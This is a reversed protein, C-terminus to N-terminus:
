GASCQRGEMAAGPCSLPPRKPLAPPCSRFVTEGTVSRTTRAAHNSRAYSLSHPTCTRTFTRVELHSTFLGKKLETEEGKNHLALMVQFACLHTIFSSFTRKPPHTHSLHRLCRQVMNGCGAGVELDQLLAAQGNGGPLVGVEAVVDAGLPTVSEARVFFRSAPVGLAVGLDREVSGAFLGREADSASDLTFDKFTLKVKADIVDATLLCGSLVNMSIEGLFQTPFANKYGVASALDVSSSISVNRMGALVAYRVHHPELCKETAQFLPEDGVPFYKGDPLPDYAPYGFKNNMRVFPTAEVSLLDVMSISLHLNPTFSLTTSSKGAATLQVPHREKWDFSRSPEFQQLGGKNTYLVNGSYHANLKGGMKLEGKGQVDLDLGLQLEIFLGLSLDVDGIRFGVAFIPVDVSALSFSKSMSFELLAQLNANIEVDGTAQLRLFDIGTSLLSSRRMEFKAVHAKADLYCDECQIDVTIDRGTACYLCGLKEAIAERSTDGGKAACGPIGEVDGIVSGAKVVAGDTLQNCDLHLMQETNAAGGTTADHNWAIDLDRTIMFRPSEVETCYGTCDLTFYVGNIRGIESSPLPFNYSGSNPVTREQIKSDSWFHIEEYLTIVLTDSTPVDNTNWRLPITDTPLYKSESTPETVRM